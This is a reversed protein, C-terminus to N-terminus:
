SAVPSPGPGVGAGSAPGADPTGARSPAQPPPTPVTANLCDALTKGELAKYRAQRILEGVGISPAKDRPAPAMLEDGLRLIDPASITEPPRSLSYTTLRHGSETLRHVYGAGALRELLEGVAHEDVNCAQAVQNHDSTKGEAFRQAVCTLVLLSAAPDVLRPRSSPHNSEILGLTSLVSYTLGRATAQRFTQMSWALQLGFLVILWSAYVWLLFLPLIALTGYLNGYNTASGSSNTAFTIYKTFGRKGMEWLVAAVFAGLLAAAPQVRTNPVTVYIIFLLIAAVGAAGIFGLTFSLHSMIAGSGILDAAHQQATQQFGQFYKQIAFSAVLLLPGLTLLTWYQIFRRIWSRGEPANYIQNFSQEVEVLLSIAAYLLAALAVLGILDMRVLKVRGVIERARDNIWADLTESTVGDTTQAQAPDQGPAPAPTQAAEIPAPRESPKAGQHEVKLQDLGAFVLMQRIVNQQLSDSTFAALAIAVVVVVPILGFMSRYSLAAAMRTLHSRRIGVLLLHVSHFLRRLFGAPMPEDPSGDVAIPRGELVAQITRVRAARRHNSPQEKTM